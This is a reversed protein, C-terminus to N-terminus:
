WLLLCKLKPTAVSCLEAMPFLTLSMWRHLFRLSPNHIDSSRLRTFKESIVDSFEFKNFNRMGSSEPLCSKSFHLLESFLSFECCFSKRFLCFKVFSMTNKEVIEFTMLFELTLLHLGLHPEDYHKGWSVTCLITPLEEDLGVRELLNV